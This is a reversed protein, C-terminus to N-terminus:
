KQVKGKREHFDAIVEKYIEIHRDVIRNWDYERAKERAAKGMEERLGDDTLLKIIKNALDTVNESQFIFGAKGDDLLAPNSKDSAIIPKGCAAGETVAYPQCDWRSPAVVVKCAKYYSYKEEEDAIFGLFKVHEELNLKKVLTKLEDEQPGTGAIYASLDPVSNLVIPLAKILIDVGKLKTLHSIFLIDPNDSKHSQFGQIKEFEIGDQVIYIKSKTWKSILDKISPTIIIINPIKSIVYRENLKHISKIIFPIIGEAYKIEKAAVGLVTLVTPKNRIFAAATSYPILTIIAHVIDPDVEAIKRRLRSILFLRLINPKIGKLMHINLNGKRIKKNENGFTIVHLEINDRRSLYHTLGDIDRSAGDGKKNLSYECLIAVKM